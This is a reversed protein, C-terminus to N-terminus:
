LFPQYLIKHLVVKALYQLCIWSIFYGLNETSHKVASKKAIKYRVILILRKPPRSRVQEDIGLM